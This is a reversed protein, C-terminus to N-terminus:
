SGIRIVVTGLAEPVNVYRFVVFLASWSLMFAADRAGFAMPRRTRVHGDFGRLLMASYIRQARAYTRLLLQGLIQGFVRIGTGRRGFSRLDRARTMRLAEEVLVFIYRYLFLLQTVLVDPIKLRELAACVGNMGTTAILTLAAATTLMFRLIISVFSIWGAAIGPGGLLSVLQRDLIPNFMGVVVAFPAAALLRTALWSFPLRGEAAMVVPFLAFPLLQIVAYKPFSVVCVLFVLTAVVKARADIRHLPTDQLAFTDVRGLEYIGNHLSSM